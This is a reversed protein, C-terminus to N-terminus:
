FLALILGLPGELGFNIPNLYLSMRLGLLNCYMKNQTFLKIKFYKCVSYCVINKFM